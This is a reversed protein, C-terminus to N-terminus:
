DGDHEAAALEGILEVLRDYSGASSGDTRYKGAVVMTPTASVRYRRMLEDARQVKAHVAFSNFTQSFDEESVGYRGFFEALAEESQLANGNVHIERFFDSHMEDKVGLAEATYFAQGHIRALSNWVTPVRIFNVYDPVDQKWEELYPDFNYCHICSYMFFEAVEVQEPGTSTPQAPSIVDYHTGAEFDGVSEVAATEAQALQVPEAASSQEAATAAEAPDTAEAEAAREASAPAEAEAAPRASTEPATSTPAQGEGGCAALSLTALVLLAKFKM